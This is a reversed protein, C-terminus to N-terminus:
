GRWYRGNPNRAAIQAGGSNTSHNTWVPSGDPNTVSGPKFADQDFTVIAFLGKVGARKWAKVVSRVSAVDNPTATSGITYGPSGLAGGWLAPDGLAPGASWPSSGAPCIVVWFRGWANELESNDWNWSDALVRSRTGDAAIIRWNGHEDVTRFEVPWPSCYGRLQEMLAWPNGRVKHDPLYRVLRSEYAEATEDPGRLILRDRGIYPLADPPAGFGPLRAAIGMALRTNLADLVLAIAYLVRADTEIETEGGDASFRDGVLWSPGLKHIIQRLSM